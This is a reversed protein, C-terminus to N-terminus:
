DTELEEIHIVKLESARGHGILLRGSCAIQVRVLQQGVVPRFAELRAVLIRTWGPGRPEREIQEALFELYSEDIVHADIEVQADSKSVADRAWQPCRSDVVVKAVASEEADEM